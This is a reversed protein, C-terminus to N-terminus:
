RLAIGAFREKPFYTGGTFPKLDPTLFVNM